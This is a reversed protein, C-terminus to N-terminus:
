PTWDYKPTMYDFIDDCHVSDYLPSTHSLKVWFASPTMSPPHSHPPPEDLIIHAQGALANAQFNFRAEFRLDEYDIDNDQHGKM